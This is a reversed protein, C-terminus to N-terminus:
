KYKLNQEIHSERMKHGGNDYSSHQNDFQIMTFLQPNSDQLVALKKQQDHEMVQVYVTPWIKTDPSLITIIWKAFYCVASNFM